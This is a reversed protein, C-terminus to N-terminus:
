ASQQSLREELAAIREELSQEAGCRECGPGVTLLAASAAMARSVRFGPANVVLLGVLRMQGGIVRWDGSLASGRIIDVDAETADPRLAGAVWLGYRDPGVSVDAVAYGTNDYHAAAEAAEARLSAHTTRMVLPGTPIGPLREGTLFGRYAAHEKPPRVCTGPYGVHCRGWLAAHGYVRGDETVTLPCGLQREEEPREPEQWVLRPDSEDTFGPDTFWDPQAGRASAALAIRAQSFAPVDVIAVHRIRAKSFTWVGEEPPINEEEPVSDYSVSVGAAGEALLEAARVVLQQTQENDSASLNGTGWIIGDSRREIENVTGITAASHDMEAIDFVLPWPGDEWYFAGELYFRGDGTEVGELAIAGEWPTGNAAATIAEFPSSPWDDVDRRVREYVATIRAKISTADEPGVAFTGIGRAGACAAIGKPVIHLRGDVVDCFGLAYAEPDRADKGKARWLFARSLCAVNGNCAEFVRQKAGKANWPTNRPAVPLNSTGILTM